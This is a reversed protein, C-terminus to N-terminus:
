YIRGCNCLLPVLSIMEGQPTYLIVKQKVTERGRGRGEGRGMRLRRRKGRGMREERGKGPGKRVARLTRSVRAMTMTMAMV